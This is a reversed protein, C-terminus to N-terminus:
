VNVRGPRITTSGLFVGVLAPLLYDLGVSAQGIQLKAALVVGTAATLLGSAVFALILYRRVPIGNLLAARPNAGIAYMARGFPTHEFLLWQILGVGLVYLATVPLPGISLTDIATFADPLDGVIQQGGTHWLAIAYLMTGMGLTAIFSDIMAIEVLLGNALGLGAGLLLVIMVSPLWPIGFRVQLSIVLIYWLVIGYGITLDIKGTIMPCLVALSLLAIVAKDDIM